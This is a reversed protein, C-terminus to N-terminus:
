KLLTVSYPANTAQFTLIYSGDKGAVKSELKRGDADVVEFSSYEKVSDSVVLYPVNTVIVEAEDGKPREVIHLEIDVKQPPPLAQGKSVAQNLTLIAEETRQLMRQMTSIHTLADSLKKELFSMRTSLDDHTHSEKAYKGKLSSLIEEGHELRSIPLIGETSTISHTHKEKAYAETIKLSEAKKDAYAMAERLIDPHEHDRDAKKDISNRLGKMDEDMAFNEPPLGNILNVQLRNVNLIDNDAADLDQALVRLPVRVEVPERVIVNAPEASSRRNLRM